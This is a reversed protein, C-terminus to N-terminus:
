RSAAQKNCEYEYRDQQGRRGARLLNIRSQVASHAPAHDARKASPAAIGHAAERVLGIEVVEARTAAANALGGVAAIGPLRDKVPLGDGRNARQGHRWRFRVDDVDSGAFGVEAGIEGVAVSHVLGDVAALAPVVNPQTIRAVDCTYDDVRV